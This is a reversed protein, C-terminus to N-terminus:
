YQSNTVIMVVSLLVAITFELDLYVLIESMGSIASDVQSTLLILVTCKDHFGVRLSLVFFLIDIVWHNLIGLWGGGGGGGGVSFHVIQGNTWENM